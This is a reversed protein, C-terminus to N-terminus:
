AEFELKSTMFEQDKQKWKRLGITVSMYHSSSGILELRKVFFELRFISLLLKVTNM